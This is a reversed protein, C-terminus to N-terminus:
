RSLSYPTCRSCPTALHLLQLSVHLQAPQDLTRLNSVEVQTPAEEYNKKVKGEPLDKKLFFEQLAAQRPALWSPLAPQRQHAAHRLVCIRM